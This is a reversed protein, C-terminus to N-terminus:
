AAGNLGDRIRELHERSVARAQESLKGVTSLVRTQYDGAGWRTYAEVNCKACPRWEDREEDVCVMRVDQCACRYPAHEGSGLEYSPAAERRVLKALTRIDSPAPWRNETQVWRRVAAKGEEPTVDRLVDYWVLLQAPDVKVPAYNLTASSLIAVCEATAHKDM